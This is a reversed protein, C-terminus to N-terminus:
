DNTDKANLFQVFRLAGYIKNMKDELKLFNYKDFVEAILIELAEFFPKFNDHIAENYNEDFFLKIRSRSGAVTQIVLRQDDLKYMVSNLFGPDKDKSEVSLKLFCEYLEGEQTFGFEFSQGSHKQVKMAIYNKGPNKKATENLLDYADNLIESMPHKYYGVMVGYSLSVPPLDTFQSTVPKLKNKFEENLKSLLFFLNNGFISGHAPNAQRYGFNDTLNNNALPAFFLLDDGGMYVPFAGYQVLMESAHEAFQNLALSFASLDGNSNEIAKILKGVNDGDAQVISFYKHRFLFDDPFAEKIARIIKDDDEIEAKALNKFRLEGKDTEIGQYGLKEWYRKKDKKALENTSIEPISMFRRIRESDNIILTPLIDKADYGIKYLKQFFGKTKTPNSNNWYEEWNLIEKPIYKQQLELADLIKNLEGVPNKNLEAQAFYVQYYDLGNEIGTENSFSLFALEKIKEIENSNLFGTKLEIYCRDPYVGAGHLPQKVVNGPSILSGHGALADVLYKMLRSFTFSVCWLERTKRAYQMTKYIPGITIALYSKSM